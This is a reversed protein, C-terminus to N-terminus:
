WQGEPRKQQVSRTDRRTLSWLDFDESHQKNWGVSRGEGAHQASLQVQRDLRGLWQSFSFDTRQVSHLSYPHTCAHTHIHTHQQQQQQQQLELPFVSYKVCAASYCIMCLWHTYTHTNKQTHTHLYQWGCNVQRYIHVHVYLVTNVFWYPESTVFPSCFLTDPGMVHKIECYKCFYFM